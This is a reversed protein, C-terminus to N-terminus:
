ASETPAPQPAAPFTFLEFTLTAAAVAQAAFVDPAPHLGHRETLLAMFTRWRPGVQAGYSGYFHLGAEPLGARRLHRTVVQGGLTAGELVYAAGWAQAETRLWAPAPAAPAHARRLTALDLALLPAKLRQEWALAQWTADPLSGRLAARLAPELTVHRAHLWALVAAYRERSLDPALLNLAQEARVHQAHTERKLRALLGGPEAGSAATM